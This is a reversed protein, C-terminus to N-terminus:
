RHKPARDPQDTSALKAAQALWNEDLGVDRAASLFLTWTEETLPVGDTLRQARMRQEPEGPVLTEKAPPAAKAQKVYAVYRMTEEPFFNDPDIRAPDVYLSFMGNAMRRDLSACGNGTLAGGLIECM